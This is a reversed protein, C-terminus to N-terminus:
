TQAASIREALEFTQRYATRSTAAYADLFGPGEQAARLLIDQQIEPPLRHMGWAPPAEAADHHTVQMPAPAQPVTGPGTTAM